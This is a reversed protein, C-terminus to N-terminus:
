IKCKLKSQEFKGSTDIEPYMHFRLRIKDEPLIKLIVSKNARNQLEQLQKTPPTLTKIGWLIVVKKVEKMSLYKAMNELMLQTRNATLM